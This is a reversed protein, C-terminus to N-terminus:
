QKAGLSALQHRCMMSGQIEICSQKWTLVANGWV